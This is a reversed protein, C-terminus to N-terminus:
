FLTYIFPSIVSSETFLILGGVLMLILVIPIVWFKKHKRAFRWLDILFELM